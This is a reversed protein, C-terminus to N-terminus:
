DYYYLRTKGCDEEWDHLHKSAIPRIDASQSARRGEQVLFSPPCNCAVMFTWGLLLPKLGRLILFFFRYIHSLPLIRLLFCGGLFLTLPSSIAALSDCAPPIAPAARDRFYQLIGHGILISKPPMGLITSLPSLHIPSCLPYTTNSESLGKDCRGKMPHPIDM